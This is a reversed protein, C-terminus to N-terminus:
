TETVLFQTSSYLDQPTIQLFLGKQCDPVKTSCVKGESTDLQILVRLKYPQSVTTLIEHVNYLSSRNKTQLQIHKKTHPYSHSHTHEHILVELCRLYM